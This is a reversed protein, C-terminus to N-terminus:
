TENSLAFYINLFTMKTLATMNPAMYISNLVEMQHQIKVQM